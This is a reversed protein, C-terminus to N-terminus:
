KGAARLVAEGLAINPNADMITDNGVTARTGQGWHKRCEFTIQPYRETALRWLRGLEAESQLNPVPEWKDGVRRYLGGEIRTMAQGDRVLQEWTAVEQGLAELVRASWATPDETM